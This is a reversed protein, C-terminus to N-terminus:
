VVMDELNRAEDVTLVGLPILKTYIDARDKANGRLFDDLNFRVSTGRLTIDDLTLRQEIATMIPRLSFDVLTKREDTVNSYTMSGGAAAGLYWEPIGMLRAIESV